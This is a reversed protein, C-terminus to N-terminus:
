RTVFPNNTNPLVMPTDPPLGPDRPIPAGVSGGQNLRNNRQQETYTPGPGGSGTTSAPARPQRVNSRGDAGSVGAGSEALVATPVAVAALLALARIKM